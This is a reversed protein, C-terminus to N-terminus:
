VFPSDTTETEQHIQAGQEKKEALPQSLAFHPDIPSCHMANTNFKALSM